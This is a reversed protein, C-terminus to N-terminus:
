DLDGHELRVLRRERVLQDVPLEVGEPDHDLAALVGVLDRQSVVGVVKGADVVPLHRIWRSAMERAAQYLPMTPPVTLVDKTMVSSVPTSGVDDGHAVAKMVDRETLIGLLTDGDMVLLSGTQQQWMRIAADKLTDSPSESVSANTMVDAVKM